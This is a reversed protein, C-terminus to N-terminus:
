VHLWHDFHYSREAEMLVNDRLTTEEQGPAIYVHIFYFLIDYLVIVCFPDKQFQYM